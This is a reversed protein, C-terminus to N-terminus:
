PACSRCSRWRSWKQRSAFFHDREEKGTAAYVVDLNGFDHQSFEGPVGDFRSVPSPTARPRLGAETQYLATKGGTYGQLRIRRLADVTPLDPESKFLEQIHSAFPLATSPRDVKIDRAPVKRLLEEVLSEKLVCTVCRRSVGSRRAIEDRTLGAKRLVRIDQRKMADSPDREEWCRLGCPNRTPPINSPNAVENPVGVPGRRVHRRGQFPAQPLALAEPVPAAALAQKTSTTEDATVPSM